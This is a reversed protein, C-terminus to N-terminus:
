IKIRDGSEFASKTANKMKILDYLTLKYKQSVFAEIAGILDSCECLELIPNQQIVADELEEFEERIKSFYGLVGKNIKRTHYSM